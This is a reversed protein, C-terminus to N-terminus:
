YHPLPSPSSFYTLNKIVYRVLSWSRWVPLGVACCLLPVLVGSKYFVTHDPYRLHFNFQLLGPYLCFSGSGRLKCKWSVNQVLGAFCSSLLAKSKMTTKPLWTRRCLDGRGQPSLGSWPLTAVVWGNGVSSRCPSSQDSKQEGRHKLVSSFVM